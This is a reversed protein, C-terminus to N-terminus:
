VKKFRVVWVFPNDMWRRSEKCNIENWLERFEDRSEAGEAIADNEDIEQLREIRVDEVFLDIRSAWKPMFIPSKWKHEPAHRIRYEGDARYCIAPGEETNVDAWTERVWLHDDPFVFPKLSFEHGLDPNGMFEYSGRRCPRCGRLLVFMHESIPNKIVRRTQTKSGDLIAEVMKWNFIIPKYKGM